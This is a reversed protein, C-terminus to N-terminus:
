NCGCGGGEVSGGGFSGERNELAHDLEAASRPDGRFRMKPDSLIARQEPRVTVCGISSLALLPLLALLATRARTRRQSSPTGHRRKIREEM